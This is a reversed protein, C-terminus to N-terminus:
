GARGITVRFASPAGGSRCSAPSSSTLISSRRSEQPRRGFPQLRQGGPGRGAVPPDAAQQGGTGLDDRVRGSPAAGLVHRLGAAPLAAQILAREGATPAAAPRTAAPRRRRRPPRASRRPRRRTSSSRSGRGNPLRRVVLDIRTAPEACDSLERIGWRGTVGDGTFNSEADHEETEGETLTLGAGPYAAQLDALVDKEAAPVM